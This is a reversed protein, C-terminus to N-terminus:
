VDVAPFDPLKQDLIIKIRIYGRRLASRMTPFMFVPLDVIAAFLHMHHRLLKQVDDCVPHNTGEAHVLCEGDAFNRFVQVSTPLPSLFVHPSEQRFRGLATSRVRSEKSGKVQLFDVVDEDEVGSGGDPFVLFVETGGVPLM